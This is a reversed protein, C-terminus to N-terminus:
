RFFMNGCQIEKLINFFLLFFHNTFKVSDESKCDFGKLDAEEDEHLIRLKQCRILFRLFWEKGEILSQRRDRLDTNQAVSKALFYEIFIYKITKFVFLLNLYVPFHFYKVDVKLQNTSIDDIDENPSFVAERQVEELCQRLSSITIDRKNKDGMCLQDYHNKSLDYLEVLSLDCLDAETM